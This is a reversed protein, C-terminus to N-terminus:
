PERAYSLKAVGADNPNPHPNKIYLNRGATGYIQANTTFHINVKIPVAEFSGTAEDTGFAVGVEFWTTDVATITFTGNYDTNIVFGSIVIEQGITKLSGTYNFRAIGGNDSVSSIATADLLFTFFCPMSVTVFGAGVLVKNFIEQNEVKIM